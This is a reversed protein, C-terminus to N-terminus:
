SSGTLDPEREAEQAALIAEGRFAGALVASHPKTAKSAQEPSGALAEYKWLAASIGGWAISNEAVKSSLSAVWPSKSAAVPRFMAWM